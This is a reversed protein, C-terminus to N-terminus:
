KEVLHTIMIWLKNKKKRGEFYGLNVYEYSGREQLVLTWANHTEPIQDPEIPLKLSEIPTYSSPWDEMARVKPVWSPSRFPLDM